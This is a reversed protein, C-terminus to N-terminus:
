RMARCGVAFLLRENVRMATVARSLMLNIKQVKEDKIRRAM